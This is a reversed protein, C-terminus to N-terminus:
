LSTGSMSVGIGIFFFAVIALAVGLILNMAM